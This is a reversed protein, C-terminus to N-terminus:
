RKSCDKRLSHPKASNCLNYNIYILISGNDLFVVIIQLIKPCLSSDFKWLSAIVHLLDLFLQLLFRQNKWNCLWFYIKRPGGVSRCRRIRRPGSGIIACFLYLWKLLLILRIRPKWGEFSSTFFLPGVIHWLFKRVDFKKKCRNQGHNRYRDPM